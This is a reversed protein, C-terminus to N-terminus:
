TGSNCVSSGVTIFSFRCVCGDCILRRLSTLRRAPFSTNRQVGVGAAGRPFCLRLPYGPYLRQSWNAADTCGLSNPLGTHGGAPGSRAERYRCAPPGEEQRPDQCLQSPRARHDCRRRQGLALWACPASARFVPSVFRCDYVHPINM